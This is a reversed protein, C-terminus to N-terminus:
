KDCTLFPEHCTNCEEVNHASTFDDWHEKQCPTLIGSGRCLPCCAGLAATIAARIFASKNAIGDLAQALDPDAKFTMIESKAKKM